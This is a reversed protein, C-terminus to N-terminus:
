QDVGPHAHSAKYVATNGKARAKKSGDKSSQASRLGHTELPLIEANNSKHKTKQKKGKRNSSKLQLDSVTSQM